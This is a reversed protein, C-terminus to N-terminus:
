RFMMNRWAMGCKSPVLVVNRPYWPALHCTGPKESGGKYIFLIINNALELVGISSYPLNLIAKSCLGVTDVPNLSQPMLVAWPRKKKKKKELSNVM